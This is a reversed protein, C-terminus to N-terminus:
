GARCQNKMRGLRMEPNAIGAHQGLIRRWQNKAVWVDIM